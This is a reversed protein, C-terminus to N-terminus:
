FPLNNNISRNLNISKYPVPKSTEFPKEELAISAPPLRKDSVSAFSLCAGGCATTLHQLTCRKRHVTIPI